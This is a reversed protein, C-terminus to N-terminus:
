CGAPAGAPQRVWTYTRRPKWEDGVRDFSQTVLTDQSPRTSVHRSVSSSGTPQTFTQDAIGSEPSEYGLGIIGTPSEQHVLFEKRSPDWATFFLWFVPREAGYEGWLCGRVTTKGSGLWYRQGYAIPERNEVTRYRANSAIWIGSGAPLFALHTRWTTDPQVQRPSQAHVTSAVLVAAVVIALVPSVRKALVVSPALGNEFTAASQM